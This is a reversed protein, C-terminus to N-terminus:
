TPSPRKTVIRKPADANFSKLVLATTFITNKRISTTKASENKPSKSIVSGSLQDVASSLLAREVPPKRLIRNIAKVSTMTLKEQVPGIMPVNSTSAAPRLRKAGVIPINPKAIASARGNESNAINGSHSLCAGFDPSQIVEKLTTKANRSNASESFNRETASMAYPHPINGLHSKIAIHITQKRPM